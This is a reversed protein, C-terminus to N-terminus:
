TDAFEDSFYKIIERYLYTSNAPNNYVGMTKEDLLGDDGLEELEAKIEDTPVPYRGCHDGACWYTSNLADYKLFFLWEDGKIMPTLDSFTVIQEPKEQIGYRQSIKIDEEPPDGKLVKKIHIKNTSTANSIVYTDTEANHWGVLKQETEEAYEGIVILQSDKLLSPLDYYVAKDTMMQLVKEPLAKSSSSESSDESGCGSLLMASLVVAAFIKRM